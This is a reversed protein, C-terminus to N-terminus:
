KLFNLNIMANLNRVYKVRTGKMFAKAVFNSIKIIWVSTIVASNYVSM